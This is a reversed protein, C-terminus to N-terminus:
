EGAEALVRRARYLIPYDVLEGDVGVAGLGAREADEFADVLRRARDIERESPRYVEEVVPIQDPHIVHKGSFGLRRSERAERRLGELDKYRPYVSDHPPDLGAVRSAMVLQSKAFLVTAPSGEDDPWDLGIDLAFDGGGFCLRKLRGGVAAIAHVAHVGAATEVTAMVDIAGIRLGADREFTELLTDVVHLATPSEVKPVVIAALGPRVVAALDPVMHPSSTPNVRVHLETHGGISDILDAVRRRSPGKEGPPVSDELDLIFPRRGLRPISRLKDEATGPVFLMALKSTTMTM